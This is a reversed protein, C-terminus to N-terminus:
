ILASSAPLLVTAFIKGVSVGEVWPAFHISVLRGFHISVLYRTYADGVIKHWNRQFKVSSKTMTQLHAYQESIVRLNNKDSKECFLSLFKGPM